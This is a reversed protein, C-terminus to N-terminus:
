GSTNVQKSIAVVRTREQNNKLVQNIFFESEQGVETLRLDFEQLTKNDSMGELLQKGGDLGINNCSLNISKLTTNQSLVQCLMTATPESLKNSGLHLTVLSQNLLLAQCMAHGGEDGMHNLRLNLSTLSTNKALARAISQAGHAHINNNCLNLIQLKSQSLLKGVARSGRDSIQNHSLDLHILSPHDLLMRILIRAKEDDVKSKQLSFVKLNRLVKFTNALSTCDRETFTFLNWEFNMGCGKVGYVLHLEELGHLSNAMIGLDFHDMSPLDDGIDSGIDSFDEQDDDQKINLKVPPLLQQIELKKVYDKGLQAAMVIPGTDTIDPIFCEILNELHREFFLRKWSGGYRSIDCIPWREASCRRWYDEHSILNATVQLPLSASIRDLVQSRHQPLLKELIPDDLVEAVRARLQLYHFWSAVGSRKLEAYQHFTIVKTGELADAIRYLGKNAWKEQTDQDYSTSLTVLPTAKSGRQLLPYKTTLTDWM